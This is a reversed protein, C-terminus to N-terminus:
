RKASLENLRKMAQTVDEITQVAEPFDEPNYGGERILSEPFVYKDIRRFKEVKKELFNGPKFSM